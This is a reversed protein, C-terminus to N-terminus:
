KQTVEMCQAPGLTCFETKGTTLDIQWFGLPLRGVYVSMARQENPGEVASKQPFGSRETCQGTLEKSGSEFNLDMM